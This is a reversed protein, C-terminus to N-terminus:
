NPQVVPPPPAVPPAPAVAPAPVAEEHRMGFFFMSMLPLITDRNVTATATAAKGDAQCKVSELFQRAQGVGPIVIAQVGMKQIEALATQVGDNVIKVAGAVQGADSGSGNVNLQLKAGDPKAFFSLQDFAALVPAQRYADTVKLVGWLPLTMDAKDLLPKMDKDALLQGKGAVISKIVAETPLLGQQPGGTFLIRRSDIFAFAVEKDPSLVDVNGIKGWQMQAPIITRIWAKVGAADWEGRVIVSVWGTQNGIDGAVGVTIGDLRIDGTKDAIELVQKTLEQAATAPDIGPMPGIKKILDEVAMPAGVFSNQAIARCDAPMVDIDLRRDAMDNAPPLPRGQISAIARRAYEAVFPEESNTLPQLVPLSEAKKLEGLTRIAMLRRVRGTKQLERTLTRSTAAIEPDPMQAGQELVSLARDGATRLKEAAGARVKPDPSGLEILLPLLDAADGTKLIASMNEVTPAMKQTQWYANTSAYDLLHNGSQGLLVFILLFWSASMAAM